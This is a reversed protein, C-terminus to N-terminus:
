GSRRPRASTILLSNENKFQAVLTVQSTVIYDRPVDIGEELDDPREDIGHCLFLEDEVIIQALMHRRLLQHGVNTSVDLKLIAM